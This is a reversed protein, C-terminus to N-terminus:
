GQNGQFERKSVDSPIQYSKDLFSPLSADEMRSENISHTQVELYKQISPRTPELDSKTIINERDFKNDSQLISPNRVVGFANNSRVSTIQSQQSPQERGTSTAHRNKIASPATSM